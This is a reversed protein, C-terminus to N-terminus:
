GGIEASKFFLLLLSIDRTGGKEASKPVLAFRVAVLPCNVERLAQLM